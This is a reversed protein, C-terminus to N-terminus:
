KSKEFHAALVKEVETAFVPTEIDVIGSWPEKSPIGHYHHGLIHALRIYCMIISPPSGTGEIVVTGPESYLINVLGAGHPGIVVKARNFVRAQEVFSPLADDSFLVFELHYKKALARLVEEKGEQDTLSRSLTRKIMVMSNRVQHDTATRELSQRYRYSILQSLYTSPYGCNTVQPWYVIKARVVGKVLRSHHIGLLELSKATTKTANTTPDSYIEIVHIKIDTNEKLFQLYPAIRPITEANKHFFGKSWFQTMVFVEDVLLSNKYSKPLQNAGERNRQCVSERITLSGTYVYGNPNVVGDHFAHIYFIYEPFHRTWYGPFKSGKDRRSLVHRRPYFDIPKLCEPKLAAIIDTNCKHMSLPNDDNTMKAIYDCFPPSSTPRYFDHLLFNSKDDTCSLSDRWETTNRRRLALTFLKTNSILYISAELTGDIIKMAPDTTNMTDIDRWPVNIERLLHSRLQNIDKNYLELRQLFSGAPDIWTVYGERFTLNETVATSPDMLVTSTKELVDPPNRLTLNNVSHDMLVTSAEELDGAPNELKLNIASHAILVTSVKELVDAANKLTVYEARSGINKTATSYQIGYKSADQVAYFLNYLLICLVVSIGTTKNFIRTLKWPIMSSFVM